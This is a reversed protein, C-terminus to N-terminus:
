RSAIDRRHAATNRDRGPTAAAASRDPDYSFFVPLMSCNEVPRQGLAVRRGQQTTEGILISSIAPRPISRSSRGGREAHRLTAESFEIYRVLRIEKATSAIDKKQSVM